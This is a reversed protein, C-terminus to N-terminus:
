KILAQIRPQDPKIELSRRWAALAKDKEGLAAHCEGLANLIEVSGPEVSAAKILRALAEAPRGTRLLQLGLALDVAPDGVRPLPQATVWLGPVPDATLRVDALVAALERGDGDTLSVRLKYAAAALKESPIEEVVALLDPYERLAKRGAWLPRGDETLTFALAGKERLEATLGRL